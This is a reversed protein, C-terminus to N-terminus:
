ACFATEARPRGNIKAMANHAAMGEWGAKADGM